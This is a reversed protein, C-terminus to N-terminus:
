SYSGGFVVWKPNVYNSKKNIYRIFYAADEIAQKSSLYKLNKTALDPLPRSEGYFRHELDFLAANHKKAWIVWPLKEYSVWVPIEPAEGGLMLFVPGNPKHYKMNSFYRQFPFFATCKPM